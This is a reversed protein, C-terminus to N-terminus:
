KQYHNTNQKNKLFRDMTIPHMQECFKLMTLHEVDWIEQHLHDLFQQATLHRNQPNQDREYHKSLYPTMDWTKIHKNSGLMVYSAYTLDPSGTMCNQLTAHIWQMYDQM